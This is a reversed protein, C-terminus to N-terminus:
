ERGEVGSAFECGGGRGGVLGRRGLSSSRPKGSLVYAGWVPHREPHADLAGPVRTMCLRRGIVSVPAGSTGPVGSAGPAGSAPIGTGRSTSAGGTGQPHAWFAQSRRNRMSLAWDRSSAHLVDKVGLHGAGM